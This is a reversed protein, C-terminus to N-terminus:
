LYPNGSTLLAVPDPHPAMVGIPTNLDLFFCPDASKLNRGMPLRLLNGLDKGELSDQKPYVELSFNPYGMEPDRLKHRWFHQGKYLEWEDTCTLVYNAAKRVSEASRPGPFGYVHVGKSGSYAAACPIELEKQITGILKRALMGMQTKLFPRAPSARDLWETRPNGNHVLEPTWPDELNTWSGTTELDLDFCFVRAQDDDDLLYHGYTAM